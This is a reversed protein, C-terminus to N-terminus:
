NEQRTLLKKFTTGIDGPLAISKAQIDAPVNISDSMNLTVFSWNDRDAVIKM